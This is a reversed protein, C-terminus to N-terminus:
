KETKSSSPKKAASKEPEFTSGMREANEESTTVTAGGIVGRVVKVDAM